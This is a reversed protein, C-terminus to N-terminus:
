HRILQGGIGHRQYQPLIAMPALAVADISVSDTEIGMRTFLIHGALRGDCEAVLSIIVAGDARLNEVLTAEDARGFAAENISRIAAFDRSQEARILLDVPM